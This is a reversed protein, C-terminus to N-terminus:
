TIPLDEYNKSEPFFLGGPLCNCGASREFLEVELMLVKVVILMSAVKELSLSKSPLYCYVAYSFKIFVM